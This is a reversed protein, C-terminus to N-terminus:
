VIKHWCFVKENLRRTQCRSRGKEFVVQLEQTWFECTRSYFDAMSEGLAPTRNEDGLELVANLEAIEKLGTGAKAKKAAAKVKKAAKLAVIDVENEEDDDSEDDDDSDDNAGTGASIYSDDDDHIAGRWVQKHMTGEWLCEWHTRKRLDMTWCDDLTVERDGVELIGGFIYLVNSRVLMKANMRPLPEVRAVAEPTGTKENLFMVESNSVTKSPLSDPTLAFKASSTRAEVEQVREKEQAQKSYDVEDDKEEEEEEEEKEEEEQESDVVEDNKEKRGEEEEIKEYVINGDGDIFAFM